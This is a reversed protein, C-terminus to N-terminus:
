MAGTFAHHCASCEILPVNPTTTSEGMTQGSLFGTTNVLTNANEEPPRKNVLPGTMHLLAHTLLSTGSRATEAAASIRDDPTM